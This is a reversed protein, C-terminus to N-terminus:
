SRDLFEESSSPNPDLTDGLDLGALFPESEAIVQAIKHALIRYNIHGGPRVRLRTMYSAEKVSGHMWFRFNHAFPLLELIISQPFWKLQQVTDVFGQLKDYYGLLDAEFEARSNKLKLNDTLYAPLVYGENLSKHYDKQMALLPIFRGWARHRNLDRTEAISCNLLVSKTNVRYQAGMQKHHTFDAMLLKSLKEKKEDTLNALWQLVSDEEANPYLSLINQLMVKLGSFYNEDYLAVSLDTLENRSRFHVIGEFAEEKLFKKLASLSNSTTEDASTYRVLDPVEPVYGISQAFDPDPALLVEMQEGLAKLQWDDNAKFQSIIRGWERASTIWALSTRNCVGSLLFSRATDFVRARLAGVQRKNESDVQYVSTYDKTLRDVWKNYHTLSYNQLEIFQKNLDEFEIGHQHLAPVYNKLSKVGTSGFDQFRTSREQGGGLSTEYFFRAGIIQPVDEIYMFVQAMDAVSAHGYNRFINALKEQANSGADKIEKFITEISDSSRSYRAGAFAVLSPIQKKDSVLATKVKFGTRTDTLVIIKIDTETAPIIEFKFHSAEPYTIQAKKIQFASTPM